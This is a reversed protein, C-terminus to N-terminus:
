WKGKTGFEVRAAPGFAAGGVGIGSPIQAVPEDDV